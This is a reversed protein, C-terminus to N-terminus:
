VREEVVATQAKATELERSLSELTTPEGTYPNAQSQAHALNMGLTGALSFMLVLSRSM